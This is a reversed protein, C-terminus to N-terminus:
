TTSGVPSQCCGEFVDKLWKKAKADEKKNIDFVFEQRRGYAHSNFPESNDCCPWDADAKKPAGEPKGFWPPLCWHSRPGEKPATLRLSDKYSFTGAGPKGWSRDMVTLKDAALYITNSKYGNKDANLVHTHYKVSEPCKKTTVVPRYIEGVQLWGFIVHLEKVPTV